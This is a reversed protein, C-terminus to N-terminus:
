RERLPHGCISHEPIESQLSDPSESNGAAVIRLHAGFKAMEAWRHPGRRSSGDLGHGRAIWLPVSMESLRALLITGMALTAPVSIDIEGVLVVTM